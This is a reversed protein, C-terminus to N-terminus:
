SESLAALARYKNYQENANQLSHKIVNDERRFVCSAWGM